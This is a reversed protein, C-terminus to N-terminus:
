NHGLLLLLDLVVPSFDHSLSGKGRCLSFTRGISTATAVRPLLLSPPLVIVFSCHWSITKRRNSSHHPSHNSNVVDAVFPPLISLLHDRHCSIHHSM